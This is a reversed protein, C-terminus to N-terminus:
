AMLNMFPALGPQVTFPVDWVLPLLTDSVIGRWVATAAVKNRWLITSWWQFSSLYLLWAFLRTQNVSSSCLNTWLPMLCSRTVLSSISSNISTLCTLGHFFHLYELRTCQAFVRVFLWRTSKGVRGIYMYIRRRSPVGRCNRSHICWPFSCYLVM